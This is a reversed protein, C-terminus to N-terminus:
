NIKILKSVILNEGKKEVAITLKLLNIEVLKFELSKIDNLLSLNRGFDKQKLNESGLARGLNFQDGSKYVSFKLWQYKQDYYSYINIERINIIEVKLSNKIQNAIFDAALYIDLDWSNHLRFFEYDEYLGKTLNIFVSLLLSSIVIVLLMELLSFGAESKLKNIFSALCSM